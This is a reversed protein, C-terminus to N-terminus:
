NYDFAGSDLCFLYDPSGIYEKAINLLDILNPSGSEEETELVLAIRPHKVGQMQANKIALMTSFPSYGDDGGGRGYLMDGEIVPKTPHLGERWGEMWPQKDLHGYFMIQTDSAGESKEIIYVVMPTMGAPQFIKKHMGKIELKQICGDVQAMAQENLGNTLYDPDVMPTLNPIRIFDCLGPVYWSDWYKDINEKTKEVNLSSSDM